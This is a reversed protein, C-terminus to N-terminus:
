MRPIQLINGPLVINPDVLNNAIAVKTWAYGDGYLTTAINWLNDGQQITYTSPLIQQVKETGAAASIEGVTPTGPKIEPLTLEQGAFIINTDVINNAKAIDYANFGSGYKKEAIQWLNEGTRVTYKATTAITNPLDQISETVGKQTTQPFTAAKRAVSLITLAVLLVVTIGILFYQYKQKLTLYLLDQYNITISKRHAM